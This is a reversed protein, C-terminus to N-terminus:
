NEKGEEYLTELLKIILPRDYIFTDICKIINKVTFIRYITIKGFEDQGYLYVNDAFATVKETYLHHLNNEKMFTIIVKNTPDDFFIIRNLPINKKLDKLMKDLTEKKTKEDADLKDVYLKIDNEANEVAKEYSKLIKNRVGRAKKYRPNDTTAKEDKTEECAAIENFLFAISPSFKLLKLGQTLDKRKSSLSKPKITLFSETAIYLEDDAFITHYRNNGVEYFQKYDKM